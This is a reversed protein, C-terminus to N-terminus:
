RVIGQPLWQAPRTTPPVLYGMSSHIRHADAEADLEVAFVITTPDDLDGLKRAHKAISRGSVFSDGANLGHGETDQGFAELM